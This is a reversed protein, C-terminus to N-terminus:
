FGPVTWYEHNSRQGSLPFSRKKALSNLDGGPRIRRTLTKMAPLGTAPGGYREGTAQRLVRVTAAACFLQSHFPRLM